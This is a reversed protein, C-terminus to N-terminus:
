RLQRDSFSTRNRWIKTRAKRCWINLLNEMKDPHIQPIGSEEVANKISRLTNISLQKGDKPLTM